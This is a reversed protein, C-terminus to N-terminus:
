YRSLIHASKQHRGNIEGVITDFRYFFYVLVFVALPFLYYGSFMAVNLHIFLGGMVSLEIKYQPCVQNYFIYRVFQFGIYMFISIMLLMALIGYDWWLMVLLHPDGSLPIENKPLKQSSILTINELLNGIMYANKSTRQEFSYAQTGESFRNVNLKVIDTDKMLFLVLAISVFLFFWTYLHKAKKLSISSSILIFTFGLIYGLIMSRSLSCLSGLFYIFVCLVMFANAFLSVKKESLFKNLLLYAGLVVCEGGPLMVRSEIFSKAGEYVSSSMSQSSLWYMLVQSNTILVLSHLFATLISLTIIIKELKNKETDYMYKTSMYLPLFLIIYVLKKVFPMLDTFNNVTNLCLISTFILLLWSLTSSRIKNSLSENRCLLSIIAVIYGINGARFPGLQVGLLNLKEFVGVLATSELLFISLGWVPKYFGVFLTIVSLCIAIM